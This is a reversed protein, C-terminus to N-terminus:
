PASWNAKRGVQPTATSLILGLRTRRGQRSKSGRELCPGSRLRIPTTSIWALADPRVTRIIARAKAYETLWVSDYWPYLRSSAPRKGALGKEALGKEALGLDEANASYIM